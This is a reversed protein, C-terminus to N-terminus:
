GLSIKNANTLDIIKADKVSSSVECAHYSMDPHTEALSWKLQGALGRLQQAESDTLKAHQM